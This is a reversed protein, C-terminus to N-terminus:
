EAAERHKEVIEYGLLDAIKKFATTIDHEQIGLKGEAGDILSLWYAAHSSAAVNEAAGRISVFDLSDRVIMM